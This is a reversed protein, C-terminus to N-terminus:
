SSYTCIREKLMRCAGTPDSAQTVAQCVAITRVGTALVQDINDMRIGGIAVHGLGTPKLLDLGQRIYDLGATPLGPKTSTAFAPGLAIYTPNEACADTLETHTHTTKGIILPEMQLRRAAEIPLDELGLHVGDAQCAVALDVRDNVISLVKAAKCLNVFERTLLFRSQDALQKNRLQICDAGGETLKQTLSIVNEPVDCTIIVYLRCRRFKEIPRGFAVIDKELTYAQYRLDEVVQAMSPNDTQIVETLARLAETVRKCGAILFDELSTRVFQKPIRTCTGVDGVTDRCTLLQDGNLGDMTRCLTHRMQKTRATLGPHNLVFRCYEEIVRLAERARNFNADIIRAAARELM